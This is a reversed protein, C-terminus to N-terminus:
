GDSLLLILLGILIGILYISKRWVNKEKFLWAGFGFTILVSGRRITSVVALLSDPQNLAAFYFFDALLLFIAIIPITWRWDLTHAKPQMRRITFVVPFLLVVQYVTFYAQVAVKDINRILHKDLLASSSSFMTALLALWVWVNSKFHIGERKGALSFMFFFGLTVIVGIWQQLSLLEGYLVLAGFITWLPSTSRIPAAITIPLHKLVFFSLVWSTLVLSTKILIFGHEQISIPPVYLFFDESLIHLKSLIIFPAFIIAGTLSTFLLVLWVANQQVAHKKALEYFGIFFASVFTLILWM